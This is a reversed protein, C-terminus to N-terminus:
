RALDHPRVFQDILRNLRSQYILDFRDMDNPLLLRAQTRVRSVLTEAESVSIEGVMLRCAAEDIIQKLVRVRMEHDLPKREFGGPNRETVRREQSM